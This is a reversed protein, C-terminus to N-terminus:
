IKMLESEKNKVLEDIKDIFTDTKKQIDDYGRKIEDEGMSKDKEIKKLEDNADKRINRVSVKAKEGMAKADKASKERDEKTMPPFFLKVCEGDNTPNVGINAGAIASTIEKLMKKEWPTITITTADSALVTAVQNLPTMTGYYDVSVHDLISINVKGSRLTGFDRKLAEIAKNNSNEQEKLIANIM